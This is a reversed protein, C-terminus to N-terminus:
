GRAVRCCSSSIPVGRSARACLGPWLARRLRFAHQKWAGAVDVVQGVLLTLLVAQDLWTGRLPLLGPAAHLAEVLQALLLLGAIGLLMPAGLGARTRVALSLLLAILCLTPLLPPRWDVLLSGTRLRDALRDWAAHPLWHEPLLYSVLCLALLGLTPWLLVRSAAPGLRYWALQGLAAMVLLAATPLSGYLGAAALALAVLGGLLSALGAPIAWASVPRESALRPSYYPTM